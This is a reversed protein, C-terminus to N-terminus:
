LNPCALNLNNMLCKLLYRWYANIYIFYTSFKQFSIYIVMTSLSLIICPPFERSTWHNRIWVQVALPMPDIGLQPVLFGHAM